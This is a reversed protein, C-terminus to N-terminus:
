WASAFLNFLTQIPHADTKSFKMAHKDGVDSHMCTMVNNHFRLTHPAFTSLSTDTSKFSKPHYVFHSSHSIHDIWPRQSVNPVPFDFYFVSDSTSFLVSFEFIKKKMNERKKIYIGHSSPTM